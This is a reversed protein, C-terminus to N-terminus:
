FTEFAMLTASCLPPFAKNVQVEDPATVSESAKVTLAAKAPQIHGRM